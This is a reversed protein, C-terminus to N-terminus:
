KTDRPDDTYDRSMTEPDGNDPRVRFKHNAYDVPDNQIHEIAQVHEDRERQSKAESFVHLVRNLLTLIASLLAAWKSM